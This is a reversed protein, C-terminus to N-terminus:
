LLGPLPGSPGLLPDGVRDVQAGMYNAMSVLFQSHNPASTNGVASMSPSGADGAIEPYALFRGTKFYGGGSGAMIIPWPDSSHTYGSILENAICVVSNDLLTGNGESIENMKGLLYAFQQYYWEHIRDLRPDNEAKHTLAHHEDEVGAWRYRIDGNGQSFQLSIIRSRDAALSAVLLDMHLKAIQPFNDNALFDISPFQAKTPLMITGATMNGPSLRQEAARLAELHQDMKIRDQGSMRGQLSMLDGGVIDLISRRESRLREALAPDTGVSVVGDTFVRDFARSPDQEGQIPRGQLDFLTKSRLNEPDQSQCDLDLTQFPTPQPVKSIIFRDLSPGSTWPNPGEKALMRASTWTGGTGAQHAGQSYDNKRRMNKFVVLKSKFPELSSMMPTFAFDKETGIPWNPGVTTGGSWFVLVLRKKASGQQAEAELVPLFPTLAAVAGVGLTSTLLSRRTLFKRPM